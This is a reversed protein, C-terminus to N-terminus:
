TMDSSGSPEVATALRKKRRSTAGGTVGDGVIDLWEWVYEPNSYGRAYRTGMAELLTLPMGEVLFSFCVRRRRYYARIESSKGCVLVV